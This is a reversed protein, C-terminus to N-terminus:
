KLTNPRPMQDSRGINYSFFLTYNALIEAFWGNGIVNCNLQPLVIGWFGFILCQKSVHTLIYSTSCYTPKNINDANMLNVSSQYLQCVMSISM